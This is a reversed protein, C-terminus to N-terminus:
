LPLVVREFECVPESVNDIDIDADMEIDTEDVTVVHTVAEVEADGLRLVDIVGEVDDESQRDVVADAVAIPHQVRGM